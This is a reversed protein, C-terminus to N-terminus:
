RNETSKTNIRGCNKRTTNARTKSNHGEAELEADVRMTHNNQKLAVKYGRKTTYNLMSTVPLVGIRRWHWEKPDWELNRVWDNGWLWITHEPDTTKQPNFDLITRKNGGCEIVRVEQWQHDIPQHLQAVWHLQETRDKHYVHVLPPEIRAIHLVQDITGEESKPAMWQGAASPPSPMAAWPISSRVRAYLAPTVRTRRLDEM